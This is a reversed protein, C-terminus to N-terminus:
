LTTKQTASASLRCMNWMWEEQWLSRWRRSCSGVCESIKEKKERGLNFQPQWKIQPFCWPEDSPPSATVWAHLSVLLCRLQLYLYRIFHKRSSPSFLAWKRETAPHFKLLQGRARNINWWRSQVTEQGAKPHCRHCQCETSCVVQAGTLRHSADEQWKLEGSQDNERMM